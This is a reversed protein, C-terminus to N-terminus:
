TSSASARSVHFRIRDKQLSFRSSKMSSEKGGDGLDSTQPSGAAAAAPASGEEEPLWPTARHSRGCWIAQSLLTGQVTNRVGKGESM